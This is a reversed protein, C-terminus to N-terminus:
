IYEHRYIKGKSSLKWPRMPEPLNYKWKWYIGSLKQNRRNNRQHSVSWPAHTLVFELLSICVFVNLTELYFAHKVSIGNVM